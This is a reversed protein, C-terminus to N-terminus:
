ALNNQEKFPFLNRPAEDIHLMMEKMMSRFKELSAALVAMLVEPDMNLKLIKLCGSIFRRVFSAPSLRDGCTKTRERCIDEVKEEIDKLSKLLPEEVLKKSLFFNDCASELVDAKNGGLKREYFVPNFKLELRNIACTLYEKYEEAKENCEEIHSLILAKDDEFIFEETLGKINEILYDVGDEERTKLVNIARRCSAKEQDILSNLRTEESRLETKKKFDFFGLNKRKFDIVSLSELDAQVKNLEKIYSLLYSVDFVENFIAKNKGINEKWKERIEKIEKLKGELNNYQTQSKEFEGWESDVTKQQVNLADQLVQRATDVDRQQADFTDQPIQRAHPIHVSVGQPGM